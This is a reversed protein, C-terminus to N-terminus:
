EDGGCMQILILVVWLGYTWPIFNTLKVSFIYADGAIARSCPLREQM